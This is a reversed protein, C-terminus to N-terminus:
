TRLAGIWDCRLRGIRHLRRRLAAYAAPLFLLALCLLEAWSRGIVWAVPVGVWGMVWLTVVADWVGSELPRTRWHLLHWVRVQHLQTLTM